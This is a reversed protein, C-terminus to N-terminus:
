VIHSECMLGRRQVWIGGCDVNWFALMVRGRAAVCDCWGYMVGEVLKRGWSVVGGLRGWRSM